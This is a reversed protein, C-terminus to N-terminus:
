PDGVQARPARAASRSDRASAGRRIGDGLVESREARAAARCVARPPSAGGCFCHALHNLPQRSSGMFRGFVHALQRGREAGLRGGAGAGADGAATHAGRVLEALARRAALQLGDRLAVRDVAPGQTRVGSRQTDGGLANGEAAGRVGPVPRSEQRFYHRPVRRNDADDGLRVLVHLGRLQRHPAPPLMDAGDVQLGRAPHGVRPFGRDQPETVGELTASVVGREGERRHRVGDGGRGAAGRPLAGLEQPDCNGRGAAGRREACRGNGARRGAELLPDTAMLPTGTTVVPSEVPQAIFERHRSTRVATFSFAPRVPDSQEWEELMKVTSQLTKYIAPSYHESASFSVYAQLRSNIHDKLQAADAQTFCFRAQMRLAEAEDLTPPRQQEDSM